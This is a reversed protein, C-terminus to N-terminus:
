SRPREPAPVRRIMAPNMAGLAEIKEIVQIALNCDSGLVKVYNKFATEISLRNWASMPMAGSAVMADVWAAMVMAVMMEMKAVAVNRPLFDKAWGEVKLLPPQWERPVRKRIGQTASEFPWM